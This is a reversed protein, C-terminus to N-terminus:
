MYMYPRCNSYTHPGSPVPFFYQSPPYGSWLQQEELLKGEMGGGGVRGTEKRTFVRIVGWLEVEGRGGSKKARANAALPPPLAQQLPHKPSSTSMQVQGAGAVERM